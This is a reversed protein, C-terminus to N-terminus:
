LSRRCQERRTKRRDQAIGEIEKELEATSRKVQTGTKRGREDMTVKTSLELDVYNETKQVKKKKKKLCPRM